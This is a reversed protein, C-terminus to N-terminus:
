MGCIKNDISIINDDLFNCQGINRKTEFTENFVLSLTIGNTRIIWVSLLKITNDDFLNIMSVVLNRKFSSLNYWMYCTARLLILYSTKEFFVSSYTTTWSKWSEWFPCNISCFNNWTITCLIYPIRILLAQAMPITYLTFTITLTM